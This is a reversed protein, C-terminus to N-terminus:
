YFYAVFALYAFTASITAKMAKCFSNLEKIKKNIYLLNKIKVIYNIIRQARITGRADKSASYLLVLM